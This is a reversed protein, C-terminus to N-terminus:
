SKHSSNVYRTLALTVCKLVPLYTRNDKDLAPYQEILLQPMM